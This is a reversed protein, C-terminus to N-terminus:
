NITIVDTTPKKSKPPREKDSIGYKSKFKLCESKLIFKNESHLNQDSHDHIYDWDGLYYQRQCYESIMIDFFKKTDCIDKQFAMESNEPFDIQGQTKLVTTDFDDPLYFPINPDFKIEITYRLNPVILSKWALFQLRFFTANEKETMKSVYDLFITHCHM